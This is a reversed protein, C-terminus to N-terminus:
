FHDGIALYWRTRNGETYGYGIYLPGIPTEAGIFVTGGYLFENLSVSQEFTFTNGAELSVGAYLRIAIGAIVINKLRRYAQLRGLAIKDGYLEAGGLGSLRGPGGLFFLDAFSNAPDQNEGYEVYPALTFEGFSWAQAANLSFTTVENDSGMEELTRGLTLSAQGGSRPFLVSNETDRRFNLDFGAQSEELDPYYPDGVILDLSNNAYFASLRIESHNNLVRGGAMRIERRNLRYTAFPEGESWIDQRRRFIDLSPSVFWLLTEGFPQYFESYLRPSSGIEFITMWEGNMRNAPLMQHRASISYESNGDFDDFFGLGIQFSHRGYPPPPTEISLEYVGDVEDIHFGIIGSHRLHFLRMINRRLDEPELDLPPKLQWVYKASSNKFSGVHDLRVRDVRITDSPSRRQSAIYTQWDPESAVFTKLQDAAARATEEGIAVTETARDFDMFGIDGLDPRILLDDQRLRSVDVTRNNVTLLSNMRNFVEWFNELKKGSSNLPSSIDVAIIRKAGLSIAIGVPLNAVSGGDVLTRGDNIVPPFLGPISMSTRMALALSGSDLVVPEGKEMDTAVARFPVPLQDFDSEPMSRAELTQLLIELSQGGLVGPPIYFGEENFHLRADILFPRDDQKRRYSLDSRPAQDTFIRNWDISILLEEIEDPSWGACYLGGVVSGMSTGVILDPVIQMEELVRLVGIHAAGRAGGGSLVLVLELDENTASQASLPPTWFNLGTILLTLFLYVSGRRM